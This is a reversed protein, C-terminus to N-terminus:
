SDRSLLRASSSLSLLECRSMRFFIGPGSVCQYKGPCCIENIRRKYDGLVSHGKKLIFHYFRTITNPRFREWIRLVSLSMYGQVFNVISLTSQRRLIQMPNFMSQVGLSGKLYPKIRRLFGNYKPQIERM